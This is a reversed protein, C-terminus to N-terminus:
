IYRRMDDLGEPDYERLLDVLKCCARLKDETHEIRNLLEARVKKSARIDEEFDDAKM